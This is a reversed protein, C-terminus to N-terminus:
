SDQPRPPHRAAPLHAPLEACPLAPCPLAPCPLAPYYPCSCVHLALSCRLAGRGWAARQRSWAARGGLRGASSDGRRRLLYPAARSAVTSHLAASRQAGHRTRHRAGDAPAPARGTPLRAHPAPAQLALRPPHVAHRHVPQPACHLRGDAPLRSAPISQVLPPHARWRHHRPLMGLMPLRPPPHSRRTGAGM